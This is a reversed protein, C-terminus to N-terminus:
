GEGVLESTSNQFVRTPESEIEDVTYRKIQNSFVGFEM